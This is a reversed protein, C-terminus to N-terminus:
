LHQHYDPSHPIKMIGEREDRLSTKTFFDQFLNVHFVRLSRESRDPVGIAKGPPLWRNLESQKYIM